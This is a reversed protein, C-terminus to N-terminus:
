KTFSQRQFCNKAELEGCVEEFKIEKVIQVMKIDKM